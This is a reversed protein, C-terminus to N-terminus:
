PRPASSPGIAFSATEGILLVTPTGQEPGGEWKGLRDGVEAYLSCPHVPGAAVSMVAAVDTDSWRDGGPAVPRVVMREGAGTLEAVTKALPGGPLGLSVMRGAIQRAARDDEPYSVTPPSPTTPGDVGVGASAPHPGCAEVVSEWRLLPLQRSLTAGRDIWAVGVANRLARAAEDGTSGAFAVLYLRDFAALQVSRGLSRAYEISADHRTVIEGTDADIADRVDGVSVPFPVGALRPDVFVRAPDRVPDGFEVRIGGDGLVAVRNVNHGLWPPQDLPPWTNVLEMGKPGPSESLFELVVTNGTVTWTARGAELRDECGVRLLAYESNRGYAPRVCPTAAGVPSLSPLRVSTPPTVPGPTPGPPPGSPAPGSGCASLWACLTLRMWLKM